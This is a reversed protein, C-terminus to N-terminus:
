EDAHDAVIESEWPLTFEVSSRERLEEVSMGAEDALREDLEEESMMEPETEPAM